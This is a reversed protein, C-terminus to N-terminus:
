CRGPPAQPYVSNKPNAWQKKEQSQSYHPPADHQGMEYMEADMGQDFDSEYNMRRYHKALKVCFIIAPIFFFLCWGISLWFGNFPYLAQNCLVVVTADYINTVPRCKALQNNLIDLIHDTFQFGWGLVRTTYDEVIKNINKSSETHLYNEAKQAKDLTDNALTKLNGGIRRLDKVNTDLANSKSAM